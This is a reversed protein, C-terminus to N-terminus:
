YSQQFGVLLTLAQVNILLPAALLNSTHLAVQLVSLLPSSFQSSMMNDCDSNGFVLLIMITFCIIWAEDDPQRESYIREVNSLLRSEVFIDTDANPHRFFHNSVMLLLQKPPLRFPQDKTIRQIPDGAADECLENLQQDDVRCIHQESASGQASRCLTQDQRSRLSDVFDCCLAYLTGPGQYLGPCDIRGRVVYSKIPTNHQEEKIDADSSPTLIGTPETGYGKTLHKHTAQSVLFSLSNDM